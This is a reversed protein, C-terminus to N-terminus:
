TDTSSEGVDLDHLNPHPLSNVHINNFTLIVKRVAALLQMAQNALLQMAQNPTPTHSRLDSFTM